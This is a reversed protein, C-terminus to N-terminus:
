LNIETAAATYTLEWSSQGLGAGAFIGNTFQKFRLTAGDRHWMVVEGERALISGSRGRQVLPEGYRGSLAGLVQDSCRGAMSGRGKVKVADVWGSEHQIEVEAECGELIVVDEIETQENGHYKVRGQQERYIARVEAITMGAEVRDWLMVRAPGSRFQERSFEQGTAATAAVLAVLSIAMRIKM